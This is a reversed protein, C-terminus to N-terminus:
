PLIKSAYQSPHSMLSQRASLTIFFPHLGGCSEHVVELDERRMKSGKM